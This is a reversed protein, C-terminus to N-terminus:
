INDSIIQYCRNFDKFIPEADDGCSIGNLYFEVDADYKKHLSRIAAVFEPNGCMITKSEGAKLMDIAEEVNRVPHPNDTFYNDLKEGCLVTIKFKGM